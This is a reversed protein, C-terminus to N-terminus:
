RKRLEKLRGGRNWDYGVRYPIKTTSGKCVQKLEDMSSVCGTQKKGSDTTRVNCQM